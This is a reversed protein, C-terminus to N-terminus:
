ALNRRLFRRTFRTTCWVFASTAMLAWGFQEFVAHLRGIFLTIFWVGFFTVASLRQAWSLVNATQVRRLETELFEEDRILREYYGAERAALRALTADANISASHYCHAAHAFKGDRLAIEALGLNARFRHPQEALVRRFCDSARKYDLRESFAEGIRELLEPQATALRSALRLCADSRQQLKADTTQASARFFRSMEYLLRPNRPEREYAIRFYSSAQALRGSLRLANALRRLPSSGMAAIDHRLVPATKLAERTQFYEFLDYSLPDLKDASIATFLAKIFPEFNARHSRLVIDLGAGSVRMRYNLKANGGALSLSLAATTITEIENVSLHQRVRFLHALFFAFLGRHHITRGDFEIRDLAAVLVTVGVWVLTLLAVNLLGSRAFASGATMLVAIILLYPVYGPRIRIRDMRDRNDVTGAPFTM